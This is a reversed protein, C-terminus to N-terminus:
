WRMPILLVASAVAVCREYEEIVQPITLGDLFVSNYKMKVLYKFKDM